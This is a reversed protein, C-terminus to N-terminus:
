HAEKLFHVIRTVGDTDSPPQRQLMVARVIITDRVEDPQQRIDSSPCLFVRKEEM